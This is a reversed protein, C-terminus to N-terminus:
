MMGYIVWHAWAPPTKFYLINRDVEDWFHGLHGHWPYIHQILLGRPRVLHGQVLHIVSLWQGLSVYVWTRQDGQARTEDVIHDTLNSSKCTIYGNDM